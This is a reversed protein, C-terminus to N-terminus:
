NEKRENRKRYSLRVIQEPLAGAGIKLSTKGFNRITQTFFLLPPIRVHGIDFQVSIRSQFYIFLDM